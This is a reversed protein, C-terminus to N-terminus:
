QWSISLVQGAGPEVRIGTGFRWMIDYVGVVAPITAVVNAAACAGNNDCLQGAVGATIVSLKFVQGSSPKIQTAATINLNTSNAAVSQTAFSNNSGGGVGSAATLGSLMYSWSSGNFVQNQSYSMLSSPSSIVGVSNTAGAVAGINLYTGNPTLPEGAIIVRQAQSVGPLASIAGVLSGLLVLKKWNGIKM